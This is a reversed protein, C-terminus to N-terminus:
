PNRGSKRDTPIKQEVTMTLRSNRENSRYFRKQFAMGLPQFALGFAQDRQKKCTLEASIEWCSIFQRDPLLASATAEDLHQQYNDLTQRYYADLKKQTNVVDLAAQKLFSFTSASAM